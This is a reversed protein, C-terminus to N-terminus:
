AGVLAQAVELAAESEGSKAKKAALASVVILDLVFDTCPVLVELVMSSGAELFDSGLKKYRALKCGRSTDVLELTSSVGSGGWQLKGISPCTLSYAGSLSSHSSKMPMNQGQVSLDISSSFTHFTASGIAVPQPLYSNATGVRSVNIHPKSSMSTTISYLITTDGYGGACEVLTTNKDTPSPRFTLIQVPQNAGSRNPSSGFLLRSFSFSSMKEVLSPFQTQLPLQLLISHFISLM